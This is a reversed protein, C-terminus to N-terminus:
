LVLIIIKLVLAIGLQRNDLNCDWILMERYPKQYKRVTKRAMKIPLCHKIDFEELDVGLGGVHTNHITGISSQTLFQISSFCWLLHLLENVPM